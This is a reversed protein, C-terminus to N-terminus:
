FSLVQDHRAILARIDNPRVINVPIVLDSESLGFNALDSASCNVGTVGYDALARSAAVGTRGWRSVLYDRVVTPGLM